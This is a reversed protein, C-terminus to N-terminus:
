PLRLRFQDASTMVFPKVKPWNGGLAVKLGSIPDIQWLGPATNAPFCTDDGPACTAMVRPEPLQSGDNKRLNLIAAAALKGLVTGADISAKSGPISVIDM